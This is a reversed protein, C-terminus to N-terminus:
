PSPFFAYVATVSFLPLLFLKLKGVDVYVRPSSLFFRMVSL